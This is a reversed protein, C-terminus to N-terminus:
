KRYRKSTFGKATLPLGDAWLSNSVMIESLGADTFRPDDEPETLIEDHITLEPEYGAADAGLLGDMLIDASGGQVVNEMLKGSYTGIRQWQKTYPNIGLFSVDREDLHVAPYLL